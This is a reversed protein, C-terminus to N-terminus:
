APGEHIYRQAAELGGSALPTTHTSRAARRHGDGARLELESEIQVGHSGGQGSGVILYQERAQLGTQRNEVGGGGSRRCWVGVSRVDCSARFPMSRSRDPGSADGVRRMRM